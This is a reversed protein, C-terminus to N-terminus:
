AIRRLGASRPLRAPVAGLAAHSARSIGYVLYEQGGMEHRGEVSEGLREAVRISARNDPHILSIVRDKGLVDFAYDLAARAGETAYGQGWWRPVLKWALECGPLGEPEAFGIVGLLTGCDKRELAWMGAGGLQWHGLLFALHRWSRGRDWPASGWGLYRQVEPDANLAAYDDIDSPRFARLRLRETELTPIVLGDM